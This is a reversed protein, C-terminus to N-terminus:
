TSLRSASRSTSEQDEIDNPLSCLFIGCLPSIVLGNGSKFSNKTLIKSVKISVMISVNIGVNISVLITVKISVM